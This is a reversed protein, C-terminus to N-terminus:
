DCDENSTVRYGGTIIPRPFRRNHPTVPFTLRNLATSSISKDVPELPDRQPFQLKSPNAIKNFDFRTKAARFHRVKGDLRALLRGILTIWLTVPLNDVLCTSIVSRGIRSPAGRHRPVKPIRKSSVTPFIGQKISFQYSIQSIPTTRPLAFDANGGTFPM